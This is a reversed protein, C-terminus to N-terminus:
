TAPQLGQSIYTQGALACRIATVLEEPASEKNLFGAAGLKLSQEVYLAGAHMTLMVVPLDPKTQHLRRLVQLGTMRPMTIDLVLVDWPEAEVRELVEVGDRAEGVVAPEPGERLIEILGKRVIAHDDAILVRIV